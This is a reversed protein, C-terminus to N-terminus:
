KLQNLGAERIMTAYDVYCINMDVRGWRIGNVDAYQSYQWITYPYDQDPKDTYHAIWYDYDSLKSMDLANEAWDPTAYIIAYYGAQEIRECFAQAIQTRLSRSIRNARAYYDPAEEVDFVIPYEITYGKIKSLVFDAEAIAEEVTIAQSYFYAGVKIGAAYAQTANQDFYDDSYISGKSGWYRGGVRLFAFEAGEAAVKKWDIEEQFSSVDIGAHSQLVGQEDFYYKFDGISHHGTLFKGDKYYFKADGVTNWGNVPNEPPRLVSPVGPHPEGFMTMIIEKLSLIDGVDVEGSADLDARTLYEQTCSEAMITNKVSLIDGVDVKGSADMDGRLAEATAISFLMSATLTASLVTAVVKKVIM